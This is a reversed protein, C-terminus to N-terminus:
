RTYAHELAYRATGEDTVLVNLYGARLGALVVAHKAPGTSISVARDCRKLQDLQLGITRADLDPDIIRGAKDVFRGLIDGVAGLESLRDIDGRGIYGSSVLVSSRSLAGMSFCVLSAQGALELVNSIVPDQELVERTEARGVIAPVPLLTAHGNGAEAFAEAVANTRVAGSRLTVAGNVLVVHVENNWHPPLWHAVSAMTRGWSVGVLSARPKLTALYQGAAQAVSELASGDEDGSGSVVIAERLGFTKQLESELKTLRASRPVIDIRVVGLDRAEQLLRSVQWRTLGLETAIETQTKDLFYHLKAAQVILQERQEDVPLRGSSESKGQTKM